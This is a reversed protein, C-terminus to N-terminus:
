CKLVYIFLDRSLTYKKRMIHTMLHMIKQLNYVNQCLFVEAATCDEHLYICEFKAFHLRQQSPFKLYRRCQNFMFWLTGAIEPRM